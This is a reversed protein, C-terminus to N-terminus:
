FIKEDVDILKQILLQCCKIRDEDNCFYKSDMENIRLFSLRGFDNHIGNQKGKYEWVIFYLYKKIIDDLDEINFIEKKNIHNCINILLEINPNSKKKIKSYSDIIENFSKEDLDLKNIILNKINPLVDKTYIEDAKNKIYFILEEDEIMFYIMGLIINNIRSKFYEIYKLIIEQFYGLKLSNELIKEGFIPSIRYGDEFLYGIFNNLNNFYYNSINEIRKKEENDKFDDMGLGFINKFCIIIKNKAIEYNYKNIIIDDICIKIMFDFVDLFKNKFIILSQIIDEKNNQKLLSLYIDKYIPIESLNPIILYNGVFCKVIKGGYTGLTIVFFNIIQANINILLHCNNPSISPYGDGSLHIYVERKLQNDDINCEPNVRLHTDGNEQKITDIENNDIYAACYVDSKHERNLQCNYFIYPHSIFNLPTYSLHNINEPTISFLTSASLTLHFYQIDLDPYNNKLYNIQEKLKKPSNNPLSNGKQVLIQELFAYDNSYIGFTPISLMKLLDCQETYINLKQSEFLKDNNDM